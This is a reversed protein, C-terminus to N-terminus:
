VARRNWHRLRNVFKGGDKRGYGYQADCRNKGIAMTSQVFYKSGLLGREEGTFAM